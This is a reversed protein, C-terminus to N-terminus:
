KKILKRLSVLQGSIPKRGETEGVCLSVCGSESDRSSEVTNLVLMVEIDHSVM